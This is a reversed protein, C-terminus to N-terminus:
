FVRIIQKNMKQIPSLNSFQKQSKVGKLIVLLFTCLLDTSSLAKKRQPLTIYRYWLYKLCSICPDDDGGAQGKQQKEVM